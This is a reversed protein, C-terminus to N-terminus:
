KYVNFDLVREFDLFSSNKAGIGSTDHEPNQTFHFFAIAKKDRISNCVSHFTSNSRIKRCPLKMLYISVYYSPFLQRNVCPHSNYNDFAILRFYIHVMVRHNHLVICIRHQYYQNLRYAGYVLFLILYNYRSNHIKRIIFCRTM